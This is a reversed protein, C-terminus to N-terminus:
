LIQRNQSNRRKVNFFNKQLSESLCLFSRLEDEMNEVDGQTEILWQTVCRALNTGWQWALNWWQKRRMRKTAKNERWGWRDTHLHEAANKHVNKQSEFNIIFLSKTATLFFKKLGLVRIGWRMGEAGDGYNVRLVIESRYLQSLMKFSLINFTQQM